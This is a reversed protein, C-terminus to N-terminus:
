ATAVSGFDATDDVGETVFRFDLFDETDENVLRWDTVAVSIDISFTTELYRIDNTILFSYDGPELKVIPYDENAIEESEVDCDIGTSKYVYGSDNIPLERRHNGDEIKYFALLTNRNTQQQYSFQSYNQTFQISREKSLRLKYFTTQRRTLGGHTGTLTETRFPASFDGLDIATHFSDGPTAPLPSSGFYGTSGYAVPGSGGTPYAQVTGLNWFGLNEPLTTLFRAM